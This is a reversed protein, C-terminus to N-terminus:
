DDQFLQNACQQTGKDLTRIPYLGARIQKRRQRGSLKAIVLHHLLRPHFCLRAESQYPRRPLHEQDLRASLVTSYDEVKDARPQQQLYADKARLRVFISTLQLCRMVTPHRLLRGYARQYHMRDAGTDVPPRMRLETRRNHRDTGIHRPSASAHRRYLLSPRPLAATDVRQAVLRVSQSQTQGPLPRGPPFHRLRRPHSAVSRYCHVQLRESSQGGETAPSRPARHQVDVQLSIPNPSSM